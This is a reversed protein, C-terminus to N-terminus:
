VECVPLAPTRKGPRSEVRLRDVRVALERSERSSQNCASPGTQTTLEFTIRDGGHVCEGVAAAAGVEDRNRTAALSRSPKGHVPIAVTRPLGDSYALAALRSGKDLVYRIALLAVARSNSRLVVSLDGSSNGGYWGESVSARM